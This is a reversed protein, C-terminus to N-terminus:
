RRQVAVTSARGVHPTFLQSGLGHGGAAVVLISDADVLLVPEPADPTSGRGPMTSVRAWVAERVSQKTWGADVFLQQHDKGVVIVMDKRPGSQSTWIGHNHHLEDVYHEVIDEPSRQGLGVVIPHNTTYVTVASEGAPIGREVALPVWPSEEENEGFCFSYRGPTSFCSRDLEGPIARMVNRVVLRLARGITANARFGPGMCGQDCKIGLELRAPGNVIVAQWNSALTATASHVNQEPQTIARVAAVVVPMYEPRCGAMVANIAVHEADVVVDWSPVTGVVEAPELGVVDLFTEVREPTPAVIPLGDTWGRADYDDLLDDVSRYRHQESLLNM